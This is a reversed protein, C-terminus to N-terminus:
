LLLPYLPLTALQGANPQGTIQELWLSSASRIMAAGIRTDL